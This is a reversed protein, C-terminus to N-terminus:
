YFGSNQSDERKCVRRPLRSYSWAHKIGRLKNLFIPHFFKSCEAKEPPPNFQPFKCNEMKKFHM